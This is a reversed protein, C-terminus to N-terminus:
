NSSEGKSVQKTLATKFAKLTTELADYDASDMPFPVRLVAINLSPLTIPLERFDGGTITTSGWAHSQSTTAGYKSSIPPKPNDMREGDMTNMTGQMM